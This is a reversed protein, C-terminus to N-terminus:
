KDCKANIKKISPILLTRSNFNQVVFILNYQYESLILFYTQFINQFEIFVIAKFSYSGEDEM